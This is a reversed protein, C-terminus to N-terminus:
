HEKTEYHENYAKKTFLKLNMIRLEFIIEVKAGM